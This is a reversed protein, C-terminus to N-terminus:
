EVSRSSVWGASLDQIVLKVMDQKGPTLWSANIDQLNVAASAQQGGEGAIVKPWVQDLANTVDVSVTAIWNGAVAEPPAQTGIMAVEQSVLAAMFDPDMAGPALYLTQIWNQDLNAFAANLSATDAGAPITTTQPFLVIPAYVPVCRGCLYHAGNLFSDQEATLRPDSDIFLGASRFDSAVLTAIYGAVFLQQDPQLDITSLNAGADPLDSGILVFQTDPMAAALGSFDASTDLSFVAKLSDPAGTQDFEPHTEFLLGAQSSAQSLYDATVQGVAQDTGQPAILWVMGPQSTATPEPTASPLVTETPTAAPTKPTSGNCGTLILGGLVLLTTLLHAPNYQRTKM